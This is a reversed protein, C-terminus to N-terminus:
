LTIDEQHGFVGVGEGEASPTAALMQHHCLFEQPFPLYRQQMDFTATIYGIVAWPLQHHIRYQVQALRPKPHSLIHATQFFEHDVECGFAPNNGPTIGAIVPDPHPVSFEAADADGDTVADSKM